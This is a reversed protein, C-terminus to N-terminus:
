QKRSGGSEDGAKHENGLEEPLPSTGIIDHEVIVASARWHDQLHRIASSLGEAKQRTEGFAVADVVSFRELSTELRNALKLHMEIDAQLRAARRALLSAHHELEAVMIGRRGENNMHLM